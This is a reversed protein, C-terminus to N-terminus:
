YVTTNAEIVKKLAEVNKAEQKQFSGGFMEMMAFMSKLMINKGAVKSDTSITTVGNNEKFNTIQEFRMMDSDFALDVFEYEKFANVTQIMEFDDQGEGPNVIVKYKSGVADADGSILEISKFGELWENFKNPDKHVEWAEQIPKNVTITHGYNVVPKLVGFLMFIIFFIVLFGLLYKLFKM